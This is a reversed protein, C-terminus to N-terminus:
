PDTCFSSGFVTSIPNFYFLVHVTFVLNKSM